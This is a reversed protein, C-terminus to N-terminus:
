LLEPFTFCFSRIFSRKQIKLISNIIFYHVMLVNVISNKINKGSIFISTTIERTRLSHFFDAYFHKKISSDEYKSIKNMM